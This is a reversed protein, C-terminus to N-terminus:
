QYDMNAVGEGEEAAEADGANGEADTEHTHQHQIHSHHYGPYMGSPDPMWGGGQMPVMMPQQFGMMDSPYPIMHGGNGGGQYMGQQPVFPPRAGRGMSNGSGPQMIQPVYGPVFGPAYAPVYGGTTAPISMDMMPPASGYPRATMIPRYGGGMMPPYMGYNMDVQYVDEYGYMGPKPSQGKAYGEGGEKNNNYSKSGAVAGIKGGHRKNGYYGKDHKAGGHSSGAGFPVFESAGVNFRFSSKSTTNTATSEAESVMSIADSRDTDHHKQPPQKPEPKPAETRKPSTQAQKAKPQETKPQSAPQTVAPAPKLDAVPKVPVEVPKKVVSPVPPQSVKSGEVVSSYSKPGSPKANKPVTAAVTLGNTPKDVTAAPPLPTSQSANAIASYPSATAALSKEQQAPKKSTTAAPKDKQATSGSSTTAVPQSADSTRRDKQVLEQIDSPM